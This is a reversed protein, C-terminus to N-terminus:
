RASPEEGSLPNPSNAPSSAASINSASSRRTPSGQRTSGTPSRTSRGKRLASLPPGYTVSTPSSECRPQPPTRFASCSWSSLEGKTARFTFVTAWDRLEVESEPALPLLTVAAMEYWRCRFLSEIAGDAAFRSSQTIRNGWPSIRQSPAGRRGSACGGPEITRDLTTLVQQMPACCAYRSDAASTPGVLPHSTPERAAGTVLIGGNTSPALERCVVSPHKSRPRRPIRLKVDATKGGILQRSQPGSVDPAPTEPPARHAFVEQRERAKDNGRAM